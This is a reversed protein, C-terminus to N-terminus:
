IGRISYSDEILRDIWSTAIYLQCVVRMCASIRVFYSACFFKRKMWFGVTYLFVCLFDERFFIILASDLTAGTGLIEIFCGVTKIQMNWIFVVEEWFIGYLPLVNNCMSTKSFHASALKLDRAHKCMWSWPLQSIDCYMEVDECSFYFKTITRHFTHVVYWPGGMVFNWKLVVM